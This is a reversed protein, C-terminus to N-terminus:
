DLVEGLEDVVELVGIPVRADADLEDGLHADTRNSGTDGLSVGVHHKDTAMVAARARRGLGADLMGTQRPLEAQGVSVLGEDHVVSPWSLVPRSTTM